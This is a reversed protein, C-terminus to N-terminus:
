VYANKGYNSANDMESNLKKSMAAPTSRAARYTYSYSGTAGTSAKCSLCLFIGGILELLGGAWGIYLGSGFEYKTGPYIPDYFQVTVNYAYWSVPVIACLAAVIFLAGGTTAIKSKVIPDTNGLLTCKLGFLSAIGAFFGLLISIIMLAQSARVYDSLGFLSLFDRCNYVGTSDSACSKWLNGYVTSTTIVSGDLSSVKWQDVGLCVGILAWGVLGVLFGVSDLASM